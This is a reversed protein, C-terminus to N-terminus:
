VLAGGRVPQVGTNQGSSCCYAAVGGGLARVFQVSGGSAFGCGCEPSFLRPRIGSKLQDDASIFPASSYLIAPVSLGKFIPMQFGLDGRVKKRKMLLVNSVAGQGLLM